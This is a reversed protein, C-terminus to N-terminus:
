SVIFIQSLLVDLYKNVMVKDDTGIHHIMKRLPVPNITSPAQDLKDSNLPGSVLAPVVRDDTM